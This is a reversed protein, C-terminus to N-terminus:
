SQRRGIRGWPGILDSRFINATMCGQYESGKDLVREIEEKSAAAVAREMRERLYVNLPHSMDEGLHAYTIDLDPQPFADELYQAMFVGLEEDTLFAACVSGCLYSENINASACVAAILLPDQLWIAAELITANDVTLVPNAGRELLLSVVDYPIPDCALCYMLMGYTQLRKPGVEWCVLYDPHIGHALICDLGEANNEQILELLVDNM